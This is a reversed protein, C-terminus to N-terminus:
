IGVSDSSSSCIACNIGFFVCQLLVTLYECLIQINLGKKIVNADILSQSYNSTSRARIIIQKQSKGGWILMQHDAIEM